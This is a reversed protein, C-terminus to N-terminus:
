NASDLLLKTISPSIVLFLQALLREMFAQWASNQNRVQILGNEMPKRAM